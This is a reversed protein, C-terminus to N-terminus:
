PYFKSWYIQWAQRPTDDFCDFDLNTQVQEQFRAFKAADCEMMLKVFRATARSQAPTFLSLKERRFDSDAQLAFAVQEGHGRRAARIMSPAIYYRFGIPDLFSFGGTWGEEDWTPSEVLEEWSKETDKAAAVAVEEDSGYDDVVFSGSWSIGGERSVGAFARRIDAEVAQAEEKLHEPLM